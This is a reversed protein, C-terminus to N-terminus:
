NCNTKNAEENKYQEMHYDMSQYTTMEDGSQIAKLYAICREKPTDQQYDPHQGDNVPFFMYTTAYMEEFLECVDSGFGEDGGGYEHLHGLMCNRGEKTRCVDICWSEETTKELYPIIADLDMLKIVEDKM